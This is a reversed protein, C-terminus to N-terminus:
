AVHPISQESIIRSRISQSVVADDIDELISGANVVLRLEARNEPKKNRRIIYHLGNPLRGRVVHADAPLPASLEQANASAVLTALALIALFRHM